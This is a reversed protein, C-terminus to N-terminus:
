GNLDIPIVALPKLPQKTATDYAYNINNYGIGLEDKIVAEALGPDGYVGVGQLDEQSAGLFEAWTKAAGCADSRTYVHIPQTEGGGTVQDWTKIDGRVWIGAFGKRTVGRRLLQQRHPNNENCTPVVADKTVSFWCAGKQIEEPYIDRSVMGLDVAKSLADAMGKGAGGASVDIRVQPHLVQFQEAWKVVMPYLAWAGSLTITGKLQGGDAGDDGNSGCGAAFLLVSAIMSILFAKKM